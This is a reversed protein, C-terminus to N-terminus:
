PAVGDAGHRAIRTLDDLASRIHPWPYKSGDEWINGERLVVELKAAVGDLSTAPTTAMSDLLDSARDASDREAQVTASYGIDRDARDWRLKHASFEAEAEACAAAEEPAVRLVDRIAERSYAAVPEGDSLRIVSFPFGVTDVLHRELGQQRRCLRETLRHADQWQRWLALVPDSSAERMVTDLAFAGSGWAGMAMATGSLMKRRTVFPLTTTNDSDVM